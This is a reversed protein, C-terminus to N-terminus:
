LETIPPSVDRVVLGPKLPNRQALHVMYQGIGQSERELFREVAEAFSPQVSWHAITTKV